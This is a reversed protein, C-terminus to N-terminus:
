NKHFNALTRSEQAKFGEQLTRCNRAAHGGFVMNKQLFTCEESPFANTQLFTCEETPFHMKRYLFASRQLSICRETPFGMKRCNAQPTLLRSHYNTKPHNTAWLALSTYYGQRVMKELDRLVDPTGSGGRPASSKPTKPAHRWLPYQVLNQVLLKSNNPTGFPPESKELERQHISRLHDLRKQRISAGESM